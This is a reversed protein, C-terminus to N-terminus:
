RLGLRARWDGPLQGGPCVCVPGEGATLQEFRGRQVAMVAVDADSVDNNAQRRRELRQVLEKEPAECFLIGFPVALERALMAAAIREKQRSHVADLIVWRGSAVISRAHDLLRGYTRATMAPEYLAADARKYLPWGALHKRVADSRVMIGDLENAVARAVTTKGSGSIGCTILVGGRRPAFCRAALDFYRTAEQALAADQGIEFCSVKARVCARYAMYFDLLPLGAYDHARELYENLFVNAHVPLERHQLDMVLFAIDNLTDGCRLAPNFEICDFIVVHGDALCMNRLHLDGHGDVIRRARIRAAFLDAHTALFNETAARLASHQDASVVRGVFPATQNFNQIAPERIRELDGYRAIDPGHAAHAHFVAVQVAINVMTSVDLRGATALRDLLGEQPLRRMRVATESITEDSRCTEDVRFGNPGHCVYVTGLYTDPALRQNLRVEDQCARRRQEFTTFDLFGFNVPKKLKYAFEGALFVHSIHTQLHEIGSAPHPYASPNQLAEILGPELDAM